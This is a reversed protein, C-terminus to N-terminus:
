VRRVGLFHHVFHVGAHAFAKDRNGFVGHGSLQGVNNGAAYGIHKIQVSGVKGYVSGAGGRQRSNVLGYVTQAHTIKIHGYRATHVLHHRGGSVNFKAFDTSQRFRTRIRKVSAGVSKNHRFAGAHHNQFAQGVRYFVSVSNVGDDARHSSRGIPFAFADGGGVGFPLFQRHFFGKFLQVIGGAFHTKQFGM